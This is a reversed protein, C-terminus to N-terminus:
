NAVFFVHACWRVADPNNAATAKVCDVPKVVLFPLCYFGRKTRWGILKKCTLKDFAIDNEQGPM